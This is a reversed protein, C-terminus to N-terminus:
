NVEDNFVISSSPDYESPTTHSSNRNGGESNVPVQWLRTAKGCLGSRIVEGEYEIEVGQQFGPLDRCGHVGVEWSEKTRHVSVPRRVSRTQEALLQVSM